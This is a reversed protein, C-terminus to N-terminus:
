ESNNVYKNVTDRYVELFGEGMNQALKEAKGAFEMPDTKVKGGMMKVITTLSYCDLYSVFVQGMMESKMSLVLDMKKQAHELAKMKGMVTLAGSWYKKMNFDHQQIEARVAENRLLEEMKLSCIKCYCVFKWKGLARRRDDRLVYKELNIYSISIEEGKSIEVFARVQKRNENEKTKVSVANPACSHNIRSLTFYVGTKNDTIGIGNTVYIGLVMGPVNDKEFMASDKLSFYKKKNEDSIKDFSSLVAVPNVEDLNDTTTEVSPHDVVLVPDESLIVAGPKLRRAAVMGWDKGPIEKIVFAACDSRHTKWHSKQCPIGCYSVKECVCTKVEEGSKGCSDCLM